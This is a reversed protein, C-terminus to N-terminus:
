RSGAAEASQNEEGPLGPSTTQTRLQFSTFEKDQHADILEVNRFYDTDELKRIYDAISVYSAAMGNITVGTAAQNLSTLWIFDPLQASLQDLMIVPGEREKMLRQILDEKQKLEELQKQYENVQAIITALRAKEQNLSAIDEDLQSITQQASWWQYGIFALSGGLILIALLLGSKESPESPIGPEGGGGSFVSGRSAPEKAGLLNVRVM